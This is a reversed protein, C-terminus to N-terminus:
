LLIRFLQYVKEILNQELMKFRSRNRISWVTGDPRFASERADGAPPRPPRAAQGQGFPRANHRAPTESLTRLAPQKQGLFLSPPGSVAALVFATGGGAGVSWGLIRGM